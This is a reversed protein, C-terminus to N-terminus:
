AKLDEPVKGERQDVVVRAAGVRLAVLPDVGHHVPGVGPGGDAYDEAGREEEEGAM